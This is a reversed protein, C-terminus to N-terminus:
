LRHRLYCITASAEIIQARCYLMQVYPVSRNRIGGTSSSCGWVTILGYGELGDDFMAKKESIGEVGFLNLGCWAWSCGLLLRRLLCLDLDLGVGGGFLGGRRGGLCCRVLVLGGGFGVSCSAERTELGIWWWWREEGRAFRGLRGRGGM